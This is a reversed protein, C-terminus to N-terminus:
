ISLLYNVAATAYEISNESTDLLLQLAILAFLESM